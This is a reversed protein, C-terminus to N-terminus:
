IKNNPKKLFPLAFAGTLRMLVALFGLMIYVGLDATGIELYKFMLALLAERVGIGNPTIPLSVCIFEILPILAFCAMLHAHGTIGKILLAANIILTSQLIITLALTNLMLAPRKKYAYVANRIKEVPDVVSKPFIRSFLARFPRTFTKSFALALLTLILILSLIVYIGLNIHGPLQIHLHFFGYLSFAALVVFGILRAVVTAGWVVGYDAERSIIFGRVIDQAGSSPLAISYYLGAFHCILARSLTVGPYFAHVLMWWRIGQLFMSFILLLVLAPVTWWAVRSIATM